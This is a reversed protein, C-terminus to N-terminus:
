RRSQGLRIRRVQGRLAVRRLGVTEKCLREQFGEKERSIYVCNGRMDYQWAHFMCTMRKPNGSPQGERPLQRVSAARHDHRSAALRQSPAFRTTRGAACSSPERAISTTRFDYSRCSSEHCVPIWTKKFIKQQEEELDASRLLHPQGVWENNQKLIPDATWQPSKKAAVANQEAFSASVHESPEIRHKTGVIDAAIGLDGTTPFRFQKDILLLSCHSPFLHFAV